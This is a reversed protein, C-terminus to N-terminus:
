RAPKSVAPEIAPLETPPLVANAAPAPPAAMPRARTALAVTLKEAAEPSMVALVEAMKRPNMQTVVPVLVDHSLRDFVRAADKPKMAEYMTVLNRIAAAQTDGRTAQVEGAKEEAGKLENLRSEIRREANELLRERLELEHGKQRIEERREGLRELIAREAPSSAQSVPEVAPRKTRPDEAPAEVADPKRGEAKKDPVAGTMTVDPPSYNSRAHAIARFFPRLQEAGAVIGSTGSAPPSAAPPAALFGALKLGLVAVAAIAVADVLRLRLQFLRVEPFRLQALRGIM